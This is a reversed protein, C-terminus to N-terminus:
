SLMNTIKKLTLPWNHAGKFTNEGRKNWMESDLYIVMAPNVEEPGFAERKNTYSWLEVCFHM